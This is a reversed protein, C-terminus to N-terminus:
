LLLFHYIIGYYITLCVKPLFSVCIGSSMGVWLINNVVYVCAASYGSWNLSLKTIIIDNKNNLTSNFTSNLNSDKMLSQNFSDSLKKKVNNKDKM